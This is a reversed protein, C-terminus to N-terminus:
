RREAPALHGHLLAFGVGIGSVVSAACIIHRAETFGPANVDTYGLGAPNHMGVYGLIAGAAMLAVSLALGKGSKMLSLVLLQAAGFVVAFPIGFFPVLSPILMRHTFRMPFTFAFVFGSVALLAIGIPMAAKWLADHVADLGDAGRTDDGNESM